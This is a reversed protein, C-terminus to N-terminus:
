EWGYLSSSSCSVLRFGTAMFSLTCIFFYLAGLVLCLKIFIVFALMIRKETTLEGFGDAGFDVDWDDAIPSAQEAVKDGKSLLAEGTPKRQGSPQNGPRVRWDELYVSFFKPYSRARPRLSGASLSRRPIPARPSAITLNSPPPGPRRM